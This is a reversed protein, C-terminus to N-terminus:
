FIGTQVIVHDGPMLPVDKSIDGDKIVDKMRVEIRKFQGGEKRVILVDNQRAFETFGGSNLIGDLATMGERYEMIGPNKVAGIVKIRKEFNSPIFVIDNPKLQIDQSVDGHIILKYFDVNLRKKDRLLYANNWDANRLSGLQALLQMLTTNSKLIIVRSAVSAAANSALAGSTSPAVDSAMVGATGEGIVYVKFSNVATVIVSVTPAKLFKTYEKELLQKLQLPTLGSTKVDGVLHVSIMGDPRVPVQVTLEPNGWVSIQLVDEEGIAYEEAYLSSSLCLIFMVLMSLTTVIHQRM